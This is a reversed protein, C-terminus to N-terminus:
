SAASGSRIRRLDAVTFTDSGSEALEKDLQRVTDGVTVLDAEGQIAALLRQSVPQARYAELMKQTATKM